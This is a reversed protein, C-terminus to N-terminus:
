TKNVFEQYATKLGRIILDRERPKIDRSFTGLLRSYPHPVPSSLRAKHCREFMASLTPFRARLLGSQLSGFEKGEVVSVGIEKFIVTLLIQNFNDMQTVWLSRNTAFSGEAMDLHLLSQKYQARNLIKRFSFGDSFKVSYRKKFINIIRDGLVKKNILNKSNLIPTAWANISTVPKLLRLNGSTLLYASVLALHSDVNMMYQNFIKEKQTNPLSNGLAVLLHEQLYIDPEGILTKIMTRIQIKKIGFIKVAASRLITNHKTSLYKRCIANFMTMQGTECSHYITELCNAQVFDYLPENNLYNFLYTCILKNNGFKRLYYNIAESISPNSQLLELVKNLIRKDAPMRFLSYNLKSILQEDGDILKGNKFCSLFM